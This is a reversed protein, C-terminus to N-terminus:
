RRRAWGLAAVCAAMLGATAPEPLPNSQGPSSMAMALMSFDSINVVGDNNLDGQRAGTDVARGYYSTLIDFDDLDADGDGDIDGPVAPPGSLVNFTALVQPGEVFEIPAPEFPSYRYLSVELTNEGAQEPIIDVTLQWPELAQTCFVDIGPFLLGVHITSGQTISMSQDPVCGDHWVGSFRVSVDDVGLVPQEPSVVANDVGTLAIADTTTLLCALVGLAIAPQLSHKM